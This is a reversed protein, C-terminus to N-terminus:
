RVDLVVRGFGHGHQVRKHAKSAQRLPFVADIPVEFPAAEVARQLRAFAARSAVADYGVVRIGARKRPPPEVGNPFAVRGGRRVRKM